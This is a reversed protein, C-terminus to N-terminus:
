TTVFANISSRSRTTRPKFSTKKANTSKSCSKCNFNFSPLMMDPRSVAWARTAM